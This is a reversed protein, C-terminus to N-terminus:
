SVKFGSTVLLSTSTLARGAIIGTNDLSLSGNAGVYYLQGQILGTVNTNAGGEVTVVVTAGSSVTQTAIGVFKLATTGNPKISFTSPRLTGSIFASYPIVIWGTPHGAESYSAQSQPDPASPVSGGLAQSQYLYNPGMETRPSPGSGVFISTSSNEAIYASANTFKNFAVMQTVTPTTPLSVPSFSNTVPPNIGNFAVFKAGGFAYVCNNHPNYLTKLYSGLLNSATISTKTVGIFTFSGDSKFPAGYFETSTDDSVCCGITGTGYMVFVNRVGPAMTISSVSTLSQSTTLTSGSQTFSAAYFGYSSGGSTGTYGMLWKGTYSDYAIDFGDTNYQTTYTTFSTATGFTLASGNSSIPQVFLNSSSDVCMLVTLGNMNRSCVVRTTSVSSNTLTGWTVEGTSTNLTGISYYITGSSNIFYYYKDYTPDYVLGAYKNSAISTSVTSWGYTTHATTATKSVTGDNNLSVLDGATIAGSATFTRIGSVIASTTQISDDPFKVGTAVLSTAM